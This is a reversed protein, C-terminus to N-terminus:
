EGIFKRIGRKTYINSIELIISNENVEIVKYDITISLKQGIKKSLIENTEEAPIDLHSYVPESQMPMSKEEFM